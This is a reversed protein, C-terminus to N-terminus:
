GGGGRETSLSLVLGEADVASLTITVTGDVTGPTKLLVRLDIEAGCPTGACDFADGLTLTASPELPDLTALEGEEDEWFATVSAGESVEALEFAFALEAGVLSPAVGDLGAKVTIVQEPEIEDVLFTERVEQEM